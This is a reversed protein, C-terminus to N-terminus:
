ISGLFITMIQEIIFIFLILLFILNILVTINWITIIILTLNNLTALITKTYLANFLKIIVFIIKINLVYILIISVIVCNDKVFYFILFIFSMSWIFYFCKLFLVKLLINLNFLNKCDIFWSSNWLTFKVFASPTLIFM